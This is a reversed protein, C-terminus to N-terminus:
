TPSKNSNSEIHKPLNPEKGYSNYAVNVDDSFHNTWYLSCFENLAMRCHLGLFLFAASRIKPFFLFAAM